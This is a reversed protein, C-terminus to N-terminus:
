RNAGEPLDIIRRGATQAYVLARERRKETWPQVGLLCTACRAPDHKTSDNEIRGTLKIQGDAGTGGRPPPANHSM